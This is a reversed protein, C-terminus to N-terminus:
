LDALGKGKKKFGRGDKYKGIGIGSLSNQKHDEINTIHPPIVLDNKTEEYEQNVTPEIALAESYTVEISKDAVHIEENEKQNQINISTEETDHTTYNNETVTPTISRVEVYRPQLSAAQNHNLLKDIINKLEDVRDRLIEIEKDAMEKHILQNNAYMSVIDVIARSRNAKNEELWKTTNMDISPDLYLTIRKPRKDRNQFKIGTM